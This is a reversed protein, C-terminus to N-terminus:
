AGVMEWEADLARVDGLWGAVAEALEELIERLTDVDTAAELGRSARGLRELMHNVDVGSVGASATPPTPTPAPELTIPPDKKVLQTPAECVPESKSEARTPRAKPKKRQKGDMGTTAKFQPIEATSELESRKAGVTKDSVGVQAAISRDSREPNSKLAATVLDQRQERTLHRRHLNLDLAHQRMAEESPYEEQRGPVNLGLEAALVARNHGDILVFIGARKTYIVPQLIGRRRIDERLGHLEDQALPPLLDAFPCDFVDGNITIRHV